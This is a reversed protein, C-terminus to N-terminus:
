GRRSKLDDFYIDMDRKLEQFGYYSLVYRLLQKLSAPNLRVNEDDGPNISPTRNGWGFFGTRGLWVNKANKVVEVVKEQHHLRKHLLPILGEISVKALAESWIRSNHNLYGELYSLCMEARRGTEEDSRVGNTYSYLQLARRLTGPSQLKPSAGSFVAWLVTDALEENWARKASEFGVENFDLSAITFRKSRNPHIAQESLHRRLWQRYPVLLELQKATPKFDIDPFLSLLLIIKKARNNDPSRSKEALHQNTNWWIKAYKKLSKDAQANHIFRILTIMQDLPPLEGEPLHGTQMIRCLSAISGSADYKGREILIKWLFPLMQLSHEPSIRIWYNILGDAEGPSVTLNKVAESINKTIKPRNGTQRNKGPFLAKEYNIPFHSVVNQWSTFNHNIEAGFLNWNLLAYAALRNELSKPVLNKNVENFLKSLREPPIYQEFAINWLPLDTEFPKILDLWLLLIERRDLPRDLSESKEWLSYIFGAFLNKEEVTLSKITSVDNNKPESFAQVKEVTQVIRDEIIQNIHPSAAFEFGGFEKVITLLLRRGENRLWNQYVDSINNLILLQKHYSLPEKHPETITKDLLKELRSTVYEPLDDAECNNAALECGNTARILYKLTETENGSKIATFLLARDKNDYDHEKLMEIFDKHTNKSLSNWLALEARKKEDGTGAFSKLIAEFANIRNPLFFFNKVDLFPEQGGGILWKKFNELTNSDLAKLAPSRFIKRLSIDQWIPFASFEEKPLENIWKSSFSAIVAEDSSIYDGRISKDTLESFVQQSYIEGPKIMQPVFDVLNTAETGPSVIQLPNRWEQSAASFYARMNSQGSNCSIILGNALTQSIGWGASLYPRLQRPLLSWVGFVLQFFDREPMDDSVTVGIGSLIFTLAKKVFTYDLSDAKFIHENVSLPGIKRSDEITIGNLPLQEMAEFFSFPHIRYDASTLYRGLKYRRGSRANEGNEFRRGVRFFIPQVVKKTVFPRLVTGYPFVNSIVDENEAEIDLLNPKCYNVLERPFDRSKGLLSYEIVTGNDRIVAGAPSVCFKGFELREVSLTENKTSQETDLM